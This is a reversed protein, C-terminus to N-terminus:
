NRSRTAALSVPFRPYAATTIKYEVPSCNTLFPELFPHNHHDDAFSGGGSLRVWCLDFAVAHSCLPIKESGICGM